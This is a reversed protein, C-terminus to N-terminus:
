RKASGTYKAYAGKYGSKSARKAAAEADSQSDCRQLSVAYWTDSNLDSWDSTVYVAAEPWGDAVAQAAFEAANGADKFSAAWVGWFPENTTPAVTASSSSSQEKKNSKSSSSSSKPVYPEVADDSMLVPYCVKWLPTSLNEGSAQQLEVWSLVDEETLGLLFALAFVTADKDKVQANATGDATIYFNSLTVEHWGSENAGYGCSYARCKWEARDSKLTDYCAVEFLAVDGYSAVLRNDQEQQFDIYQAVESPVRLRFMECTEVAEAPAEEEAAEEGDAAEDDAAEDAAATSETQAAATSESAASADADAAEEMCGMVMLAMACALVIGMCKAAFLKM